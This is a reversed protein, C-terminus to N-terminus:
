RIQHHAPVGVLNLRHHIERVMTAGIDPQVVNGRHPRDSGPVDIEAAHQM